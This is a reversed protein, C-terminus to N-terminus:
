MLTSRTGPGWMAPNEPFRTLAEKRSKPNALPHVTDFDYDKAPTKSLIVTLPSGEHFRAQNVPHRKSWSRLIDWLLSMPADTKISNKCAHSISVNHGEHLIVSRFKLMPIMELKLVCCMQDITYYLPINPLEEQVMSLVGLIRNYTGLKVGRESKVFEIVKNLFEFDHIPDSWIPGGLHHKHTCHTCNTSVYPGTPLNFKLSKKNDPSAKKIALPQLTLAGCGTCQYVMSQKLCSEKCQFQGTFVRVFVRVYFDVSLSLLPKIYRGYRNAHGEICRLLIRLAMEHCAKTRLPVCGYKVICAEPTNGALVAMDTATILLLGGDEVSQLAADLFRNPCGYPDIDIATFRKDFSTSSYM